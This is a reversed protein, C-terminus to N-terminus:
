TKLNPNDKLKKLLKSNEWIHVTVNGNRLTYTFELLKKGKWYYTETAVDETSCLEMNLSHGYITKADARFHCTKNEETVEQIVQEIVPETLIYRHFAWACIFLLLFMGKHKWITEFVWM